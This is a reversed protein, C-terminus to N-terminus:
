LVIKELAQKKLDSTIKRYRTFSKSFECHGSMSAIISDKVEKEYLLGIFTRRAMHSSAIDCIRKKELTRTSPNLVMVERKIGAMTCITKISRNYHYTSIFPFLTSRKLDKYKKLIDLAIKTLPVSVTKDGTKSPIYILEGNVINNRSFSYLDGVRAGCMCQFIFIDRQESLTKNKIPLNLIADRETRTLYYPDGYLEPSVHIQRVPNTITIKYNEFLYKSLWNFCASMKKLVSSIYNQSRKTNIKSPTNLLWKEFGLVYTKDIYKIDTPKKNEKMYRSFLNVMSALQKKRMEGVSVNKLYIDALYLFSTNLTIKVPEEKQNDRFINNLENVVDDKSPNNNNEFLEDISAIMGIFMDNVIEAEVPQNKYLCIAKESVYRMKRKYLSGGIWGKEEVKCGTSYRIRNGLYSISATILKIKSKKSSSELYFTLSYKTTM